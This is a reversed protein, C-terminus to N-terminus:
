RIVYNTGQTPLLQNMVGLYDFKNTNLQKYYETVKKKRGTMIKEKDTFHITILSRTNNRTNTIEKRGEKRGGKRGEERERDRSEANAKSSM